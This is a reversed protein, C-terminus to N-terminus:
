ANGKFVELPSDERQIALSAALRSRADVAKGHSHPWARDANLWDEANDVLSTPVVDLGAAQLQELLLDANKLDYVKPVAYPDFDRVGTDYWAIFQAVIQRADTM